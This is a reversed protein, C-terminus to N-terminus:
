KSHHLHLSHQPKHLLVKPMNHTLLQHLLHLTLLPVPATVSDVQLESAFPVPIPPLVPLLLLYAPMDPASSPPKRAPLTVTHPSFPLFLQQLAPLTLPRFLIAPLLLVPFAPLFDQKLFAPLPILFLVPILLHSDFPLLSSVPPPLVVPM